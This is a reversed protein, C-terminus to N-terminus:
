NIDASLSPVLLIAVGGPHSALGGCTVEGTIKDPQGSLESTGMETSRAEQSREVVRADKRM